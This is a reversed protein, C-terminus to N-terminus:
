YKRWSFEPDPNTSVNSANWVRPKKFFVPIRFYRVSLYVTIFYTCCLHIHVVYCNKQLSSFYSSSFDTRLVLCLSNTGSMREQQLICVHHKVAAPGVGVRWGQPIHETQAVSGTTLATVTPLSFGARWDRAQAKGVLLLFRNQSQVEWRAGAGVEM